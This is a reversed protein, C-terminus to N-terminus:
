RQEEPISARLRDLLDAPVGRYLVSDILIGPTATLALREALTSDRSLRQVMFESDLCAELRSDASGLRRSLAATTSDVSVNSRVFEQHISVGSPFAEACVALAAARRSAAGGIMTLYRYSLRFRRDLTPDSQLMSDTARCAACSFDTFVVLQRRTDGPDRAEFSAFDKWEPVVETVGVERAREVLAFRVVAIMVLVAAAVFM